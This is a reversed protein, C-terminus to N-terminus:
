SQRTRKIRLTRLVAKKEGDIRYSEVAKQITKNHNWVPLRHASLYPLTEEYRMTLATAFYWAVMMNVYYHASDIAAVWDLYVPDFADDLFHRMLLGIAFRVTYAHPDDMWTRIRTVLQTKNAAFPAPNLSDCVAWNDVYPLFAQLLRLSRDMDEVRNLLNVHLLNEEYYRHPLRLLFSDAEASGALSAAYKKLAPSRVGIITEKDATPILRAMFDRYAPDQLLFLGATISNEQM